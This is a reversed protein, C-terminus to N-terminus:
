KLSLSAQIKVKAGHEELVSKFLSSTIAFTQDQERTLPNFLFYVTIGTLDSLSTQKDFHAIITDPKHSVLEFTEKEYFSIQANEMLDSYVFIRKDKARSESLENLKKALPTYISSNGRQGECAQIDLALSDYAGLFEDVEKNRELQNGLLQSRKPLSYHVEKNLSLDTIEIYSFDIGQWVDKDLGFGQRITHTEPKLQLTDTIDSFLIYEKENNQHLVTPVAIAASVAVLIIILTTKM